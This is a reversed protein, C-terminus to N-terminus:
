NGKKPMFWKKIINDAQLRLEENVDYDEVQDFVTYDLFNRGRHYLEVRLQKIFARKSLCCEEYHNLMFYIYVQPLEAIYIATTGMAMNIMNHGNKRLTAKM